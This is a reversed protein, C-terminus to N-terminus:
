NNKTLYRKPEETAVALVYPYTTKWVKSSEDDGTRVGITWKLSEILIYLGPYVDSGVDPGVVEVIGWRPVAQSDTDDHQIIIGSSLKTAFMGGRSDDLFKFLISDGLARLKM